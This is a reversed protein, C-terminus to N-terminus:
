MPCLLHKVLKILQLMLEGTKHTAADVHWLRGVAAFGMDENHAHIIAGDITLGKGVLITTCSHGTVTVFLLTIMLIIISNKNM